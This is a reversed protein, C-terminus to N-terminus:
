VIEVFLAGERWRKRGLSNSCSGEILGSQANGQLVVVGMTKDCYREDDCLEVIKAVIADAEPKNVVAQQSGERHGGEVFVRELSTM